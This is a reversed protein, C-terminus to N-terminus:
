GLYSECRVSKNNRKQHIGYCLCHYKLLLLLPLPLREVCMTSGDMWGSQNSFISSPCMTKSCECWSKMEYMKRMTNKGKTPERDIRLLMSSLHMLVICYVYKLPNITARSSIYHREVSSLLLLMLLIDRVVVSWGVSSHTLWDVTCEARETLHFYKHRHSLYITFFPQAAHIKLQTQTQTCVVGFYESYEKLNETEGCILQERISKGNMCHMRNESTFWTSQYQSINSSIWNEGIMWKM